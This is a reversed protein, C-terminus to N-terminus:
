RVNSPAIIDTSVRSGALGPAGCLQEFCANPDVRHIILIVHRGIPLPEEQNYRLALLGCSQGNQGVPGGDQRPLLRQRLVM